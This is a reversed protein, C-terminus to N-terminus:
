VPVCTQDGDSRDGGSLVDREDVVHVLRARLRGLLPQVVVLESRSLALRHPDSERPLSHARRQLTSSTRSPPPSPLTTNDGKYVWCAELRGHGRALAFPFPFSLLFLLSSLPQPLTGVDVRSQFQGLRGAKKRSRQARGRELLVRMRRLIVSM